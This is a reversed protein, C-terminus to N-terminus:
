GASQLVPRIRELGAAGQLRQIAGDYVEDVTISDMVTRCHPCNFTNGCAQLPGKGSLKMQGPYGMGHPSWDGWVIVAPIALAAAAHHNAGEPAIVLNAQSMIAASQHFQPTPIQVAGRIRRRSNDHICQVVQHGAKMLKVALAEFRGEGWDKNHNVQRQWALNPEVVIFPRPVPLDLEDATFFFEGPQAQFDPKWIYRRQAGDYRCYSFVKKYHLHWIINDQDEQGPRAINPNHLFIDDCYGTWKIKLPYTAAEFTGDKRKPGPAHFAALKGQAHLGRALASAM